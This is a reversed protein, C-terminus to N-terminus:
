KSLKKEKESLVAALGELNEKSYVVGTPKNPTNVLVARAKGTIADGVAKVDISCDEAAMVPKYKGGHNAIYFKYEQFHPTVVIVEEGKNLITKLALNLGGAAGCCMVIDNQTIGNFYGGNDLSNAVAERVAKHGANPMYRHLGKEGSSLIKIAEDHFDKPPELVPNGLSFDVVNAEGYKKKLELGAEYMKRTASSNKIYSEIKRSLM